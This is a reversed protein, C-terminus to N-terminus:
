VSSGGQWVSARQVAICMVLAPCSGPRVGIGVVAVNVPATLWLLWAVAHVAQVVGQVAVVCGADPSEERSVRVLGAAAGGVGSAPVSISEHLVVRHVEVVRPSQVRYVYAAAFTADVLIRLIHRVATIVRPHPRRRRRLGPPNAQRGVCAGARSRPRVTRSPAPMKPASPGSSWTGLVM